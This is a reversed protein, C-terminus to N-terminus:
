PPTLYRIIIIGKQGNGGGGPSGGGGSGPTVGGTAPNTGTEGTGGAGSSGGTGGVLTGAAGGAGGGGGAAYTLAAGSISNSTGAGGAGGTGNTLTSTGNSGASGAGGGGGAGVGGSGTISSSGGNGGSSGTGASGATGLLNGGAGGGSAGNAGNKYPAVDTYAGGGGGGLATTGNFSVVNGDEGRLNDGAPVGQAVAGIVVPYTGNALSIGTQYIIQGGGGGGIGGGGGGGVFLVDFLVGAGDYVIFDNSHDLTHITYGGTQFLTGGVAVGDTGAPPPPADATDRFGFSSGLGAGVGIWHDDPGIQIPVTEATSTTGQGLQGDLNGGWGWLTNDDRVALVHGGFGSTVGCVFAGWVDSNIQEFSTRTTLDGLGLQGVENQGYAWLTGDTKKAIIHYSGSSSSGWDTDTGVQHYNPYSPHLNDGSKWITGDTKVICVHDYGCSVHSVGSALLILSDQSFPFSASTLEGNNGRGCGWLEGDSNIAVTTQRHTAAIQVWDSDSGMQTLVLRDDTDGTGLNGMSNDGCGWITGDAKLAITFGQGCVVDTWPGADIEVPFSARHFGDINDALEGNFGEGWTWLSGDGKIGASHWRGGSVKTWVLEPEDEGLIDPTYRISAGGIGLQGDFNRGWSWLSYMEVEEACEYDAECTQEENPYLCPSAARLADAEAQAQALAAANAAAVSFPNNITGAAVTVSITEGILGEECPIVVTQAVNTYLLPVDCTKKLRRPTCQGTVEDQPDEWEGCM